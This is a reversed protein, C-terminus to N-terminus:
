GGLLIQYIKNVWKAVSTVINKSEHGVKISDVHWLVTMKKRNFVKNAVCPDYPNLNFGITSIDDIFNNYFLLEAKTIGYTAKFAQVCIVTEGKKNMTIYKCYIEPAKM